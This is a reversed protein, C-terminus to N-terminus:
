LHQKKKKKSALTQSEFKMNKKVKWSWPFHIIFGGNRKVRTTQETTLVFSFITDFLFEPLNSAVKESNPWFFFLTTKLADM